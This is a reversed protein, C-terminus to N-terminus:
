LSNLTPDLLPRDVTGSLKFSNKYNTSPCRITLGFDQFTGEDDCGDHCSDTLESGVQSVKRQLMCSPLTLNKEHQNIDTEEEELWSDIWGDRLWNLFSPRRVRKNEVTWNTSPRCPLVGIELQTKLHPDGNSWKNNESESEDGDM